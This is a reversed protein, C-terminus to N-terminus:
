VTQETGNHQPRPLYGLVWSMLMALYWLPYAPFYTDTKEEVCM